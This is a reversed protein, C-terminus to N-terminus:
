VYMKWTGDEQQVIDHPHVHRSIRPVLEHVTYRINAANQTLSFMAHVLKRLGPPGYINIRSATAQGFYTSFLVGQLGM